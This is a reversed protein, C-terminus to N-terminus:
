TILMLDIIFRTFRRDPLPNLALGTTRSEVILFCVFQFSEALHVQLQPLVLQDKFLCRSPERRM